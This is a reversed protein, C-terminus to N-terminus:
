LPLFQIDWWQPGPRETKPVLRRTRASKGALAEAPPALASQVLQQWDADPDKPRTRCVLGRVARAELGTLKEWARNVFLLRRRRNLMFLPEEARQFYAQWRLDDDPTEPAPHPNDAPEAM